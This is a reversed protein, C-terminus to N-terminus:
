KALAKVVEEEAGDLSSDAWVSRGTRDFLVYTPTYQIGMAEFSFGAGYGVPWDFGEVSDVFRKLDGFTNSEPTLGIVTLGESRFRRYLDALEPLARVCPGCDSSWFDVLVVQGRLAASDLPRDANLWGSVALPPPALGVLAHPVKPRRLQIALLTAAAVLLLLVLPWSTGRPAEGARVENGREAHSRLDEVSRTM